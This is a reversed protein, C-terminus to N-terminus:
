VSIVITLVLDLAVMVYRRANVQMPRVVIVQGTVSVCVSAM